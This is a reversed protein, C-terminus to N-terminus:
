ATARRPTWRRELHRGLTRRDGTLVVANDDIGNKRAFDRAFARDTQRDELLGRLVAEAFTLTM